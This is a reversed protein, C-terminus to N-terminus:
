MWWVLTPAHNSPGIFLTVTVLLMMTSWIASARFKWLPTDFETADLLKTRLVPSSPRAMHDSAIALALLVKSWLVTCVGVRALPMATYPPASRVRDFLRMASGIRSPLPIWTPDRNPAVANAPVRFMVSLVTTRPPVYSSFQFM